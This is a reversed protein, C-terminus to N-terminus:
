TTINYSENYIPGIGITCQGVKAAKRIREKRKMREKEKNMKNQEHRDETGDWESDSM